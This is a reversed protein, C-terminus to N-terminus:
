SNLWNLIDIAMCAVRVLALRTGRPVFVERRDDVISEPESLDEMDSGFSVRSLHIGGALSLQVEEVSLERGKLLSFYSSGQGRRGSSLVLSSLLKKDLGNFSDGKCVVFIFGELFISWNLNAIVLALLRSGLNDDSASFKESRSRPKQMMVSVHIVFEGSCEWGSRRSWDSM